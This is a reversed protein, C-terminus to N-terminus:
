QRSLGALFDRAAALREGLMAAARRASQAVHRRAGPPIKAAADVLDGEFKHHLAAALIASQALDKDAKGASTPVRLAAVILKHLCYRAASPV